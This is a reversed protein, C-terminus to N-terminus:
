VRQGAILRRAGARWRTSRCATYNTWTAGLLRAICDAAREAGVYGTGGYYANMAAFASSVAGHYARVTLQHGWEHVVVSYLKSLPVKPSIYVVHRWVDSAGWHGYRASVRWQTVGLRYGPIRAAARLVLEEFSVARGSARVPSSPLLAAQPTTRVVVPLPRHVVLPSAVARPPDVAPTLSLTQTHHATPAIPAGSVALLATCQVFAALFVSLHSPM